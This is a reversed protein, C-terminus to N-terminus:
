DLRVWPPPFIFVNRLCGNEGMKEIEPKYAGTLLNSYYVNALVDAVQVMRNQASDFYIVEVDESLVNEMRLETNLYNQLFHRTDTRENREDLQLIYKDDPLLKKHIFYEIALKLVYNFARATNDYLDGGSAMVRRNDLVIYFVELAGDHCFFDVFKRKLAPTFAAGKLEDFEDDKFMKGAQDAARLEDMHKIVFRKHLSKLRKPTETRVVAIVFYPWDKVFKTTMSGSEDIYLHQM